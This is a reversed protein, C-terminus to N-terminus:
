FAKIENATRRKQKRVPSSNIIINVSKLRKAALTQLEPLPTRIGPIPNVM